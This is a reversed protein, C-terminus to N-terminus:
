EGNGAIKRLEDWTISTTTRCPAALPMRISIMSSRSSVSLIDKMEQGTITVINCEPIANKAIEPNLFTEYDDTWQAAEDLHELCYDTSQKALELYEKVAQEHEELFATRVVTVTTVSQAGSDTNLADM